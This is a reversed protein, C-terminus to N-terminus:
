LPLKEHQYPHVTFSGTAAFLLTHPDGANVFAALAVLGDGGPRNDIVVPKGWRAQLKEQLIRATIDAGAGPGFPVILKVSQTPWSQAVGPGAAVVALGTILAAMRMVHLM